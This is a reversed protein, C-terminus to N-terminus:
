QKFVARYGRSRLVMVLGQLEQSTAPRGNIEKWYDSDERHSLAYHLAVFKAFGNVVCDSIAAPVLTLASAILAVSFRVLAVSSVVFADLSDFSLRLDKPAFAFRPTPARLAKVTPAENAPPLIPSIAVFIIGNGVKSVFLFSYM